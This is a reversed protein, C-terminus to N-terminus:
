EKAEDLFKPNIKDVTDGVSHYYKMIEKQDNKMWYYKAQYTSSDKLVFVQNMSDQTFEPSSAGIGDIVLLQKTSKIIEQHLSEFVRFGHSDYDDGDYSVEENGAFVFLNKELLSNNQNIVEILMAVAAANDVAGPGVVSDFHAFVISTPNNFNGVLINETTFKEANVEVKGVINKATKIIPMSLRSVAIAPEDHFSMLCIEDTNENFHIQEISRIEGGKFSCGICPIEVGDAFLEARDIRPVSSEFKEGVFNINLKALEDTIIKAGKMEDIGYRPSIITLKKIFDIM